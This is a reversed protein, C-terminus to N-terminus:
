RDKAQQAIHDAAEREVEDRRGLWAHVALTLAGLNPGKNGQTKFATLRNEAELLFSRAEDPRGAAIRLEALDLDARALELPPVKGPDARQLDASIKAVAEGVTDFVPLGIHLTGGKGPTVGGVLETGYELAQTSHFTGQQGTFGQTIVKTNSNILVSM